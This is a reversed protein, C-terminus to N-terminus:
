SKSERNVDFGFIRKAFYCFCDLTNQVVYEKKHKDKNWLNEIGGSHEIYNKFQKVIYEILENLNEENCLKISMERKFVEIFDKFPKSTLAVLGLEDVEVNYSSHKRNEEFEVFQQALIPKKSVIDMIAQKDLKSKIDYSFDNRMVENCETWLYNAFADYGLTPLHRLFCEPTLIIYQNSLPNKPLSVRKDEWRLSNLNFKFHRIVVDEMPINLEKCIQQTYDIFNEKIINLVIDSITDCGVGEVFIAIQEFHKPIDTELKLSEYIQDVM